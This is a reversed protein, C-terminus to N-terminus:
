FVLSAPHTNGRYSRTPFKGPLDSYITGKIENALAAHCFMETAAKPEEEPKIDQEQQDTIDQNVKRTSRNQKAHIIRM